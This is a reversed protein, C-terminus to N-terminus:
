FDADPGRHRPCDATLLTVFEILQERLPGNTAQMRMTALGREPRCARVVHRQDSRWRSTWCGGAMTGSAAFAARPRFIRFRADFQKAPSHGQQGGPPYRAYAADRVRPSPPSPRSSAKAVYRLDGVLNMLQNGARNCQGGTAAARPELRMLLDM